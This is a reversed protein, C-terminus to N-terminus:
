KSLAGLILQPDVKQGMIDCIKLYLYHHAPLSSRLLFFFLFSFFLSVFLFSSDTGHVSKRPLSVGAM